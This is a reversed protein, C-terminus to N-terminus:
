EERLLRRLQARGRSLRTKVAPQSIGLIGGIERISLRDYYFLTVPARLTEDLAMVAQWLYMRETPDAEPAPLVQELESLEVTKKRKRCLTYCQNVLIRLLWAKCKDAERLTSRAAFAACIAEQVADEADQDNQLISRATRFMADQHELVRRCFTEKDMIADATM